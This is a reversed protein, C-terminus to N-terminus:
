KAPLGDWRPDKEYQTGKRPLPTGRLPGSLELVYDAECPKCRYYRFEFNRSHGRHLLAMDKRCTPCPRRLLMHRALLILGWGAAIVAASCFLAAAIFIFFDVM